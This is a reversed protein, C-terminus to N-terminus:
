TSKGGRQKFDRPQDLGGITVLPLGRSAREQDTRVSNTTQDCDALWKSPRFGSRRRHGFALLM